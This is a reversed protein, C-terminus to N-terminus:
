RAIINYMYWKSEAFISVKERLFTLGALNESFKWNLNEPRIFLYLFSLGYWHATKLFYNKKEKDMHPFTSVSWVAWLFMRMSQWITDCELILKKILLCFLLDSIIKEM